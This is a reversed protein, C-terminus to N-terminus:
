KRISLRHSKRIIKGCMLSQKFFSQMSIEFDLENITEVITEAGMIIKSFGKDLKERDAVDDNITHLLGAM